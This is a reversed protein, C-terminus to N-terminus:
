RGTGEALARLARQRLETFWPATVAVPRNAARPSPVTLSDLIRGPRPSLVVVQDSLYLAEEVDHSVLLV